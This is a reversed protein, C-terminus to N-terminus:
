RGSTVCAEQRPLLRARFLLVIVCMVCVFMEIHCSKTVLSICDFMLWDLLCKVLGGVAMLFVKSDGPPHTVAPEIRM